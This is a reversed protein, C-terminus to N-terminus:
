YLHVHVSKVHAVTMHLVNTRVASAVTVVALVVIATTDTVVPMAIAYKVSESNTIIRDSHPRSQSTVSGNDSTDSSNRSPDCTASCSRDRACKSDRDQDGPRHTCRRQNRHQDDHHNHRDPRENLLLNSTSHDTGCLTLSTM